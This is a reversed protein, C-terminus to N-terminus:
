INQYFHLIDRETVSVVRIGHHDKGFQMGVASTVVHDINGHKGNANQHYHGCFIAKVGAANFKDLIPLRSEKYINFDEDDEDSSAIFWPIHQFVIVHKYLKSRKLQEDIWKNQRETLDTVLSPDSYKSPYLSSNLVIMLVGSVVFSFYDDGFERKYDDISEHSPQNGVDHNGCVCVLPINKDLEEFVAKFADIQGRRIDKDNFEDVLDGCVVFFKPKPKMENAFQIARRSLDIETQWGPNVKGEEKREMLGLQTDAAQIFSFPGTWVTVSYICSPVCTRNLVTTAKIFHVLKGKSFKKQLDSDVEAEADVLTM